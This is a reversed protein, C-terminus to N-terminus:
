EKKSFYLPPDFQVKLNKVGMANKIVGWKLVTNSDDRDAFYEHDNKAWKEHTLEGDLM